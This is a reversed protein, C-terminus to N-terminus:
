FARRDNIKSVYDIALITYSKTEEIVKYNLIMDVKQKLKLGVLEKTLSDSIDVIPQYRELNNVLNNMTM